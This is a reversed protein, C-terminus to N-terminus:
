GVTINPLPGQHVCANNGFHEDDQGFAHLISTFLNHLSWESSYEFSTTETAAHENYNVYRGTNFYGNASGALLVPTNYSAHRPANSFESTFLLLSRDLMTKGGESFDPDDLGELLQKVLGMRWRRNDIM